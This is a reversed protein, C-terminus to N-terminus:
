KYRPRFNFNSDPQEETPESTQEEHDSPNDSIESNLFPDFFVNNTGGSVNNLDDDNIKSM